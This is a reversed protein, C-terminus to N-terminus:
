FAMEFRPCFVGLQSAIEHLTARLDDKFPNFGQQTDFDISAFPVAKTTKLSEILHRKLWSKGAGAVGYFFLVPLPGEAPTDLAQQFRAM